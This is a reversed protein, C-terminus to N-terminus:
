DTINSEYRFYFPKHGKITSDFFGINKYRSKFFKPATTSLTLYGDLGVTNRATTKSEWLN